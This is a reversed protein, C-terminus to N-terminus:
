TGLLPPLKSFGLERECWAAASLLSEDSGAAGILQLGVPMGEASLGCPITVTPVGAFSWPSNFKPDGTTTIDPAINPTAPMLVADFDELM